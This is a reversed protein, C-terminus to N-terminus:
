LTTNTSYYLFSDEGYYEMGNGVSSAVTRLDSYSAASSRLYIHGANGYMYVDTSQRTAWLPLDVITSGSEKVTRPLITLKGPDSRHDIGQGWLYSSQLGEKESTSLGGSFRDLPIHQISM